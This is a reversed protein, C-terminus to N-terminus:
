RRRATLAALALAALVLPGVPVGKEPTPADESVPIGTTSRPPPILVSADDTVVTPGEASFSVRALDGAPCNRACSIAVPAPGTGIPVVVGVGPHVRVSIGNVTYAHAAARRAEPDASAHEGRATAADEEGRLVLVVNRGQTETWGADPLAGDHGIRVDFAVAGPPAAYAETALLSVFPADQLELEAVTGVRMPLTLGSAGVLIRLGEPPVAPMLAKVQLSLTAGKAVIVDELALTAEVTEEDDPAMLPAALKHRAVGLLKGDAFLAVELSQGDSGQTLLPRGAEVHLTVRVDGEALFTVPSPASFALPIAPTAPDSPPFHVSGAEPAQAALKGDATAFATWTLALPDFAEAQAIASPALPLALALLLLRSARM